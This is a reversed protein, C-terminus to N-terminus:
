KRVHSSYMCRRSGVSVAFKRETATGRVKKLFVLNFVLPHSNKEREWDREIELLGVM